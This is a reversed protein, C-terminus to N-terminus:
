RIARHVCRFKLDTLRESEGIGSRYVTTSDQEVDFGGRVTRESRWTPFRQDIRAAGAGPFPGFRDHHARRVPRDPRARWPHQGTVALIRGGLAAGVWQRPTLRPIWRGHTL